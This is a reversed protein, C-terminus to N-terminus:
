NSQKGRVIELAECAARSPHHGVRDCYLAWADDENQADVTMTKEFDELGKEGQIRFKAAVTFAYRPKRAEEASAASADLCKRLLPQKAKRAEARLQKDAQYDDWSVPALPNKGPAAKPEAPAQTAAM